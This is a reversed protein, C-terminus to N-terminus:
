AGIDRMMQEFEVSATKIHNELIEMLKQEMIRFKKPDRVKLGYIDKYIFDHEIEAWAHHLIS